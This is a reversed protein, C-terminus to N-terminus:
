EKYEKIFENMDAVEGSNTDGIKKNQMSSKEKTFKRLFASRLTFESSKSEGEEFDSDEENESKIM